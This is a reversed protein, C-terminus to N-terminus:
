AAADREAGILALGPAAADGLEDDGAGDAIERVDEVADVAREGAVGVDGRRRESTICLLEAAIGTAEPDAEEGAGVGVGAAVVRAGGDLAASSQERGEPM